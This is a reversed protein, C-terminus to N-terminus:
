PNEGLIRSFDALTKIFRPGPICTYDDTLICIRNETVARVGTLTQWYGMEVEAADLEPALVIIIDPNLRLVGEKSLLVYPKRDTLVNKGGATELLENHLCAAGFAHVQGIKEDANGGFAILVRPPDTRDRRLRNMRASLDATLAEAEKQAGCADGIDRVAKLIDNVTYTGTELFPIGLNRLRTKEADFEEHLIVLDPKLSVIAEYNFQGFGGVKEVNQAEPPHTCFTTVGVLKDGLDLAYLIETINPALSIM